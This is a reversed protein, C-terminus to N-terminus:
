CDFTICISSKSGYLLLSSSRKAPRMSPTTIQKDTTDTEAAKIMATKSLANQGYHCLAWAHSHRSDSVHVIVLALCEGNEFGNVLYSCFEFEHVGEKRNILDFTKLLKDIM